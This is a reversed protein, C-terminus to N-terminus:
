ILSIPAALSEMIIMLITSPNSAKNLHSRPLV